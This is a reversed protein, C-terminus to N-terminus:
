QSSRMWDRTTCPRDFLRTSVQFLEGRRNVGEVDLYYIGCLFEEDFVTVPNIGAHKCHVM